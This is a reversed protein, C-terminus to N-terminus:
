NLKLYEFIDTDTKLKYNVIQKLVVSSFGLAYGFATSRAKDIENWMEDEDLYTGKFCITEVYTAYVCNETIIINIKTSM